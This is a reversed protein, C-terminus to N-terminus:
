RSGHLHHNARVHFTTEFKEYRHTEQKLGLAEVVVAAVHKAHEAWFNFRRGCYCNINGESGSPTHADIVAAVAATASQDRSDV